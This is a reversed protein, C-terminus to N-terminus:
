RRQNLARRVTRGVYVASKVFFLAGLIARIQQPTLPTRRSIPKDIRKALRERWGILGAELTQTKRIRSRYGAPHVGFQGAFRRPSLADFSPTLVATTTNTPEIASSAASCVANPGGSKRTM